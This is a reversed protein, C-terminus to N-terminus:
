MYVLIYFDQKKDQIWQEVQCTSICTGEIYSISEVLAFVLTTKPINEVQLISEMVAFVLNNKHINEVQLISVMGAFVLTTKYPSFCCCVPQSETAM